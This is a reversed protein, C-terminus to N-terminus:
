IAGLARLRTIETGGLGLETRLVEDTHEGLWPPRTEPGEVMKSLKVPNGPTLVPQEVGDTRPIEVLMNRMEVHPDRVVEEDALCPGAAIGAATLEACAATKTRTAAWGEVAPRITDDLHVVWGRRDRLRDDDLWHECGLLRALAAFQHDRVVQLVFWGDAARFGNMILPGVDGNRLGMSWLNTVLDTMAIAADLMAIDVYQGEGTRDRHRVAALVGITAYLAAGIDGIAGMPGVVPPADGVRKMEYMGTMAEVIPAFALWERYPSVTTNGFGSVSVYICTPHVAAIDEYALGLRAMSGPKSNEAVVDFRPVLRLLLDRGEPSKLDITVSRKNLNNRLFTAGVQRGDPDTMAPMSGRGSEGTRPPEVKVVEAGLRALLQTAYPLAQMQELALVRLGDLPRGYPSADRNAVDGLRV